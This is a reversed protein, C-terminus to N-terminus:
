EPPYGPPTPPMQPLPPLDPLPPTQVSDEPTWLKVQVRWTGDAQQQIMGPVVAVRYIRTQRSQIPREGATTYAGLDIQVAFTHRGRICTCQRLDEFFVDGGCIDCPRDASGWDAAPTILTEAIVWALDGELLFQDAPITNPYTDDSFDTDTM